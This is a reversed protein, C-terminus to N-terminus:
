VFRGAPITLQFTYIAQIPDEIEGQPRLPEFQCDATTTSLGDPSTLTCPRTGTGTTVPAFVNTRLTGLNDYLGQWVNTHPTGSQDVDGRVWLVLNHVAETTRRPYGRTGVLRPIVLNSGIVEEEVGPWLLDLNIVDWAPCNLPFLGVNVQLTGLCGYESTHFGASM